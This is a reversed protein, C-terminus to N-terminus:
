NDAEINIGAMCCVFPSSSIFALFLSSQLSTLYVHHCLVAVNIDSMKVFVGPRCPNYCVIDCLQNANLIPWDTSIHCDTNNRSEAASASALKALWSDTQATHSSNIIKWETPFMFCFLVVVFCVFLSCFCCCCFLLLFVSSFCVFLWFLLSCVLLCIM